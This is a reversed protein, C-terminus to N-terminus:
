KGRNQVQGCVPCVPDNKSLSIYIDVMNINRRVPFKLELAVADIAAAENKFDGQDFDGLIPHDCDPDLPYDRGHVKAEPDLEIAPGCYQQAGWWSEPKSIVVRALKGWRHQLNRKLRKAVALAQDISYCRDHILQEPLIYVKAPEWEFKLANTKGRVSDGKVNKKKTTKM